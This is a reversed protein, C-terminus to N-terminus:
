GEAGLRRNRVGLGAGLVGVGVEFDEGGLGVVLGSLEGSGDGRRVESGGESALAQLGQAIIQVGDPLIDSLEESRPM